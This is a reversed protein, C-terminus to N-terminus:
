RAGALWPRALERVAEPAATAYVATVQTGRHRLVQAVAPLGAGHRLMATAAAHRLLHPGIAPRGIRRATRRVLDSVGNSTLPGEPAVVRVFM